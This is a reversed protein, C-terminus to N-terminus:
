YSKNFRNYWEAEFEQQRESKTLKDYKDYLSPQQKVRSQDREEKFQRKIQELERREEVLRRQEEKMNADNERKSNEKPIKGEKRKTNRQTEM